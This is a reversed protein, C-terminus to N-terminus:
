LGLPDGNVAAAVTAGAGVGSEVLVAGAPLPVADFEEQPKSSGSFPEGDRVKQINRLGLSVGRKVNDYAFVTVTARAYCGGYFENPTIIDQNNVDVLGPRMKSSASAFVVEPGYGDYDKDAGDRIPAQLGKPWKTNDPGWKAVAAARIAARLADMKAKEVPDTIVKPWLMSVSFKPEQGPVVARAQFVAPFSVRFVPTMFTGERLGKKATEIAM